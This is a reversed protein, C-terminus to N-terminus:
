GTPWAASISIMALINSLATLSGTGSEVFTAFNGIVTFPNQLQAMVRRTSGPVESGRVDASVSLFPYTTGTGPDIGMDAWVNLDSDHYDIILSASDIRYFRGPSTSLHDLAFWSFSIGTDMFFSGLPRWSLSRGPASVGNM